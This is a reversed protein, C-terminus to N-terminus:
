VDGLFINTSLQALRMPICKFFDVHQIIYCRSLQQFFMVSPKITLVCPDTPSCESCYNHAPNKQANNSVTIPVSRKANPCLLAGGDADDDFNWYVCAHIRTVKSDTTVSERLVAISEYAKAKWTCVHIKEKLHKYLQCFLFEHGYKSATYLLVKHNPSKLLWTKVEALLATFSEDRSPLNETKITCFTTDLYLTDIAKVGSVSKLLEMKMFDDRSLRFDGTYLVVGNSGELLFMVSGPCHFAPLLTVCVINSSSVCKEIISSSPIDLVYPENTRLPHVYPELHLYRKDCCLLKATIEHCYLKYNMKELLDSFSLNGLGIMHDEHCHSLFFISSDLNEKNFRDISVFPYEFLKGPFCSM